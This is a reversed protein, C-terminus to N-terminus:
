LYGYPVTNNVLVKSHWLFQFPSEDLYIRFSGFETKVSLLFMPGWVATVNELRLYRLDFLRLQSSWIIQLAVDFGRAPRCSMSLYLTHTLAHSNTHAIPAAVLGFPQGFPLGFSTRARNGSPSFPSCNNLGYVMGYWIKLSYRLHHLSLRWAGAINFDKM